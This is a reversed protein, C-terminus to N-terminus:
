WVRWVRARAARQTSPAYGAGIRGGYEGDIIFACLVRGIILQLAHPPSSFDRKLIYTHSNHILRRGLLVQVDARPRSTNSTRKQGEERVGPGCLM